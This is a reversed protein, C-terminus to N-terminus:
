RDLVESLPGLRFWLTLTWYRQVTGEGGINWKLWLM